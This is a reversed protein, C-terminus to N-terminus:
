RDAGTMAADADPPSATAAACRGPDRRHRSSASAPGCCSSPGGFTPSRATPSAAHRHARRGAPRPAAHRDRGRDRSAVRFARDRLQIVEAPDLGIGVYAELELFLDEGFDTFNVGVDTGPIITVGADYLARGNAHIDARTMKGPNPQLKNIDKGTEVEYRTGASITPIARTGREVMGRAVDEDFTWEWNPGLMTCHQISDIGAKSANDIGPVGHAHCTIRKGLRHAEDAAAALEPISYSGFRSDTGPTLGGGTSMIKIGDAGEDELLRRVAERVGDVGDAEGGFFYCHGTPRPSPGAASWCDHVSRAVRPSPTVSRM